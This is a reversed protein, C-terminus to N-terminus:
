EKLGALAKWEDREQEADALLTELLAIRSTQQQLLLNRNNLEQLQTQQDTVQTQLYTYQQKLDQLQHSVSIAHGVQQRLEQERNVAGAAEKEMDGMYNQLLELEFIKNDLSSRIENSNAITLKLEHLEKEKSVISYQYEELRAKLSTNEAVLQKVKNLLDLNDAIEM